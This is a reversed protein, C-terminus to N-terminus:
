NVACCFLCCLLVFYVVVAAHYVGSRDNVYVLRVRPPVGFGLMRYFQQGLYEARMQNEDSYYKVYVVEGTDSDQAWGGEASGSSKESDWRVTLPGEALKALWKTNQDHVWARVRHRFTTKKVGEITTIQIKFKELAGPIQDMLPLGASINLGIIVGKGQDQAQHIDDISVEDELFVVFQGGEGNLDQKIQEIQDARVFVTHIKHPPVGGKFIAQGSKRIGLWLENRDAAENYESSDVIIFGGEDNIFRDNLVYSPDIHFFQQDKHAWNTGGGISVQPPQVGRRLIDMLAHHGIVGRFLGKGTPFRFSYNEDKAGDINDNAEEIIENVRMGKEPGMMKQRSDPGADVLSGATFDLLIEEYAAGERNQSFNSTLSKLAETEWKLDSAVALVNDITKRNVSFLSLAHAASFRLDPPFRSENVILLLTPESHHNNLIGNADILDPLLVSESKEAETLWNALRVEQGGMFRLASFTALIDRRIGEDESKEYLDALGKFTEMERTQRFVLILNKFLTNQDESLASSSISQLQDEFIERFIPKIFYFYGELEPLAEESIPIPKDKFFTDIHKMVKEIKSPDQTQFTAPTDKEAWLFYILYNQNTALSKRYTKANAQISRLEEEFVQEEVKLQALNIMLPHYAGLLKVYTLISNSLVQLSLAGPKESAEVLYRAQELFRIVNPTGTELFNKAIELLELIQETSINEIDFLHEISERLELTQPDIQRYSLMLDQAKDLINFATKASTGELDKLKKSFLIPYVPRIQDSQDEEMTVGLLNFHTELKSIVFEEEGKFHLYVEIVSGVWSYFGYLFEEEKPKWPQVLAAMKNHVDIFQLINESNAEALRQIHDPSLPSNAVHSWLTDINKATRETGILTHKFFIGMVKIYNVAGDIIADTRAKEFLHLLGEPWTDASIMNNLDMQILFRDSAIRDDTILNKYAQFISPNAELIQALAIDEKSLDSLRDQLALDLYAPSVDLLQNIVQLYPKKLTYIRSFLLLKDKIVRFRKEDNRGLTKELYEQVDNEIFESFYRGSFVISSESYLILIQFQHKPYTSMYTMLQNLSQTVHDTIIELTLFKNEMQNHFVTELFELAEIFERINLSSQQLLIPVIKGLMAKARAKIATEIDEFREWKEQNIPRPSDKLELLRLLIKIKDLDSFNSEDLATLVTQGESSLDFDSYLRTVAAKLTKLVAQPRNKDAHTQIRGLGDSLTNLPRPLTVEKSNLKMLLSRIEGLEQEPLELGPSSKGTMYYYIYYILNILGIEPRGPHYEISDFIGLQGREKVIDIWGGFAWSARLSGSLRASDNGIFHSNEPLNNINRGWKYATSESAAKFLLTEMLAGIISAYPDPTEPQHIKVATIMGQYLIEKAIRLSIATKDLAAINLGLQQDLLLVLDGQQNSPRELTLLASPTRLGDAWLINKANALQRATEVGKQFSYRLEIPIQPLLTDLLEFADNLVNQNVKKKLTVEVQQNEKLSVTMSRNSYRQDLSGQFKGPFRSAPEVGAWQYEDISAMGYPSRRVDTVVMSALGMWGKLWGKIKFFNYTSHILASAVMAVPISFLNLSPFFYPLLVFPAGLWSGVFSLWLRQGRTLKNGDGDVTHKFGFALSTTVLLSVYILLQLWLIQPLFTLALQGLVIPIQFVMEWNVGLTTYLFYKWSNEGYKKKAWADRISAAALYPRPSSKFSRSEILSVDINGDDDITDFLLRTAQLSSHEAVIQYVDPIFRRDLSKSVPGVNIKIAQEFQKMLERDNRRSGTENGVILLKNEPIYNKRMFDRVAEPKHGETLVIHNKGILYINPPNPM